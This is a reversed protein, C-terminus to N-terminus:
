NPNTAVFWVWHFFYSQKQFNVELPTLRITPGSKGLSFWSTPRSENHKGLFHIELRGVAVYKLM